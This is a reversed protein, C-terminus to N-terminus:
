APWLEGVTLQNVMRPSLGKIYMLRLLKAASAPVAFDGAMWRRLTREDVGLFEAASSQTHMGLLDLLQKLQEPTMTTM